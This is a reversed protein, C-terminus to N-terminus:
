RPQVNLLPGSVSSGGYGLKPGATAASYGRWLWLHRREQGRALFVPSFHLRYPIFDLSEGARYFYDDLIFPIVAIISSCM